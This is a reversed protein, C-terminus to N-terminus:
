DARKTGADKNEVRTKKMPRPRPRPRSPAGADEPEAAESDPQEAARKKNAHPAVPREANDISNVQVADQYIGQRAECFALYRKWGRDRHAQTVEATFGAWMVDREVHKWIQEQRHDMGEHDIYRVLRLPWRLFWLKRLRGLFDYMSSQSDTGALSRFPALEKLFEKQEALAMEDYDGSLNLNM